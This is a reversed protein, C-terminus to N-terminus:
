GGNLAVRRSGARFLGLCILGSVVVWGAQAALLGLMREEMGPQYVGLAWGPVYAMAPFPTWWAAQSLWQPLFELPVLTGLILALKQYIWYFARNEELWFATLGLATQSFFAVFGSLVLAAATFGGKALWVLGPHMPSCCDSVAVLGPTGFQLGTIGLAIVVGLVALYLVQVMAPVLLQAAQYGLYSYPRGLAYAIQGSKVEQAQTFFMRGFGFVALEAALFYWVLSYRTYGALSEGPPVAAGYLQSFVFVFIAFTIGPGFFEGPYMLTNKLSVLGVKNYKALKSLGRLPQM